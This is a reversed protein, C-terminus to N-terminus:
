SAPVLLLHLLCTGGFCGNVELPSRRTIDWFISSEIIVVTLVHFGVYYDTDRISSGMEM